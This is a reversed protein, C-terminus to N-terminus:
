AVFYRKVVERLLDPAERVAGEDIFEGGDHGISTVAYEIESHGFVIEIEVPETRGVITRRWRLAVGGDITAEIRPPAVDRRYHTHLAEVFRAAGLRLSADVAVGGFREGPKRPVARLQSIAALTAAVNWHEAVETM